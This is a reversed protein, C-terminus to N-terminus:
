EWEEKFGKSLTEIPVDKVDELQLDKNSQIQSKANKVERVSCVYDFLPLHSIWIHPVGEPM